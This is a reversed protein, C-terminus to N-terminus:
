FVAVCMVSKKFGESERLKRSKLTCLTYIIHDLTNKTYLRARHSHGSYLLNFIGNLEAQM